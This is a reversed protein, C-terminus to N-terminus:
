VPGGLHDARLTDILIFVVNLDDREALQLLDESRGIPRADPRIQFQTLFVGAILLLAIAAYLIGRRLM